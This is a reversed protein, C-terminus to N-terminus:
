EKFKVIDQKMQKNWFDVKDKYIRTIPYGNNEKESKWTLHVVAIRKDELELIIDDNNTKKAILETNQLLLPHDDPLEVKLENMLAQINKEEMEIVDWYPALFKLEFTTNNLIDELNGNKLLDAITKEICNRSLEKVFLDPPVLYLGNLSEGNEEDTKIATEFFKYMWVNIGYSRGDLTDVIINAFDNEIDDWPTSIEFELWLKFPKNENEIVKESLSCPNLNRIDM